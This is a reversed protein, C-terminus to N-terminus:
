STLYNTQINVATDKPSLVIGSVYYTSLSIQPTFTLSKFCLQSLSIKAIISCMGSALHRHWSNLSCLNFFLYGTRTGLASVPWWLLYSSISTMSIFDYMHYILNSCLPISITVYDRLLHHLLDRLTLINEPNQYYKAINKFDSIYLHFLRFCSHGM